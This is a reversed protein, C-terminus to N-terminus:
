PAIWRPSASDAASAPRAGSGALSAVLADARLEVRDGSCLVTKPSVPGPFLSVSEAYALVRALAVIVRLAEAPDREVKMWDALTIGLASRVLWVGEDDEGADVFGGIGHASARLLREALQVDAEPMRWIERGEGADFRRARGVAGLEGTSALEPPARKM